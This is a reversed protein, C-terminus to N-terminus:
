WLASGVRAPQRHHLGGAQIAAVLTQNTDVSGSSTDRDATWRPTQNLAALSTNLASAEHQSANTEAGQAQLLLSGSPFLQASALAITM